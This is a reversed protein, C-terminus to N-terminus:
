ERCWLNPDNTIGSKKDTTVDYREMIWEIASKGNVIYDYVSEPIGDIVVHQNYAIVSRDGKNPWSMKEVRYHDYMWEKDADNPKTQEVPQAEDPQKYNEYHLHMEALQRGAKSFAMFDELREVIQIRPLAKRLDDAFRTRYEESHLVGYIYYFIYEYSDEANLLGFLTNVLCLM